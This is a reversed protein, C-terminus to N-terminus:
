ENIGWYRRLPVAESPWHCPKLWRIVLQQMAARQRHVLGPSEMTTHVLELLRDPPEFKNILSGAEIAAKFDAQDGRSTLLLLPPSGAQQLLVDAADWGSAAPLDLDLLVAAPKLLRLTGPAAVTRRKRVLTRRARRAAPQLKQWFDEDDSFLLLGRPESPCRRLGSDVHLPLRAVVPRHPISLTTM